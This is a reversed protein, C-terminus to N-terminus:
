LALIFNFYCIDCNTIFIPKKSLILWVVITLAKLCTQSLLCRSTNKIFTGCTPVNWEVLILKVTRPIGYSQYTPLDDGYLLHLHTLHSHGIRFRNLLVTNYCSMNKSHKVIGVTPYISHLKNGDCCDWIDQSEDLCFKSVCPLLERAPLKM